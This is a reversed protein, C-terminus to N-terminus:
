FTGEIGMMTRISHDYIAKALANQDVPATPYVHAYKCSAGHMCYGNDFFKCRLILKKTPDHKFVCALGNKCEGKIFHKCDGNNEKLFALYHPDHSYRCRRGFKCSGDTFHHKCIGNTLRMNLRKEHYRELDEQKHSFYCDKAKRKCVGFYHDKCIKVDNKPTEVETAESGEPMPMVLKGNKIQLAIEEFDKKNSKSRQSVTDEKDITSYAM